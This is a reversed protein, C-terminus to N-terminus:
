AYSRARAAAVRWPRPSGGRALTCSSRGDRRMAGYDHTIRTPLARARHKLVFLCLSSKLPIYLLVFNKPTTHVGRTPLPPLARHGWRAARTIRTRINRAFIAHAGRMRLARSALGRVAGIARRRSGPPGAALCRARGGLRVLPRVVVPCPRHARCRSRLRARRHASGDRRRAEGGDYGASSTQKVSLNSESLM